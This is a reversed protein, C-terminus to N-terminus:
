MHKLSCWFFTIVGGQHCVRLLVKGESHLFHPGSLDVLPFVLELASLAGGELHPWSLGHLTTLMLGRWFAAVRVLCVMCCAEMVFVLRIGKCERREREFGGTLRVQTFNLPFTWAPPLFGLSEREPDSVTLSYTVVCSLFIQLCLFVHIFISFLYCKISTLTISRQSALIAEAYTGSPLSNNWQARSISCSEISTVQTDGPGGQSRWLVSILALSGGSSRQLNVWSQFPHTQIYYHLLPTHTHTLPPQAATSSCLM